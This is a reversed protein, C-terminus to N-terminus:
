QNKSPQRTSSETACTIFFCMKLPSLDFYLSVRRANSEVWWRAGNKSHELCGARTSVVVNSGEPTPTQQLGPGLKLNIHQVPVSEGPLVLAM